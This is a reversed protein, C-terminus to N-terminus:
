RKLRMSRITLFHNPTGDFDSNKKDGAQGRHCGSSSEIHVGRRLAEDQILQSFHIHPDLPEKTQKDKVFEVGRQLGRGRIDGVTPHSRLIELKDSLYNGMEVCREILRHEQLYDIVRCVVAAAVPNGGYTHGSGFMGSKGAITDHIRARIVAAGVPYYGASLGKALAIIDPVVGHYQYAHWKGTRGVGSMVEDLIMLVDYRDCIERIIKFHEDPPFAAALSHGSVPEAIYASVTEPGLALIENELARACDHGCTDPSKGYWCRYCYTAPLHVFDKLYPTFDARRSTFGSWSLAGMTAGHYSQWRSIVRFKSPHGNDIHYKRALKVATETAESGGSVFFVRDMDGNTTECVRGAAEELEPTQFARRFVFAVKQMQAAVAQAIEDVGHGISCVIAGGSADIYRKGKDDFLYIGEAKVISPTKRNLYFGLVHEKNRIVM